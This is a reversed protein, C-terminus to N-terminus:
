GMVMNIVIGILTAAMVGIIFGVLAGIMTKRAKRMKEEDGSAGAYMIAGWILFLTSVGAVISGLIQVGKEVLTPLDMSADNMRSTDDGDCDQDIADDPSDQANPNFSMGRFTRDPYKNTDIIEEVDSADLLGGAGSGKTTCGMGEKIKPCDCIGIEYGKYGIKDKCVGDTIMMEEPTGASFYYDGDSDICDTTAAPNTATFAFVGGGGLLSFSFLSFAWAAYLVKKM